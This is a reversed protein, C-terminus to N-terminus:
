PHLSSPSRPSLSRSPWRKAVGQVKLESLWSPLDEPIGVEAWRDSGRSPFGQFQPPKWFHSAQSKQAPCSPAKPVNGVLSLMVNPVCSGFCGRTNSVPGHYPENPTKIAPSTQALHEGIWTPSEYGPLISGGRSNTIIIVLAITVVTAMQM